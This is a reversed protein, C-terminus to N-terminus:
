LFLRNLEDVLRDEVQGRYARMMMPLDLAVRVSAGDVSVSGRMGRAAGRSADFLMLDGKWQWDIGLKAEMKRALSETRRKAEVKDIETARRVEITAM